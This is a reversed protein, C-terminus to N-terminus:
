SKAAAGAKAKSAGKRSSSSKRATSKKGKASSGKKAAAPKAAADAPKSSNGGSAKEAAYVGRGARVVKYGDLVTGATASDSMTAALGKPTDPKTGAKEARENVDKRSLPKSAKRLIDLVAKLQGEEQAKKDNSTAMKSGKGEGRMIFARRADETEFSKSGQAIEEARAAQEELLESRRSMGAEQLVDQIAPSHARKLM